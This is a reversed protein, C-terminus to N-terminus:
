PRAPLTIDTLSVADIENWGAVTRTDLVVTLDSVPKPYDDFRFTATGPFAQTLDKNPYERSRCAHGGDGAAKGRRLGASLPRSPVAASGALASHVCRGGAWASTGRGPRRRTFRSGRKGAGTEGLARERM